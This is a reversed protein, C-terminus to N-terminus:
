YEVGNGNEYNELGLFIVPCAEQLRIFSLCNHTAGPYINVRIALYGFLNFRSFFHDAIRFAFCFRARLATSYILIM